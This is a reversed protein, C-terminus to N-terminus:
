IANGHIIVLQCDDDADCIHELYKLENKGCVIAEPDICASPAIERLEVSNSQRPESDGDQICDNAAEGLYEIRSPDVRQTV